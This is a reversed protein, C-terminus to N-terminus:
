APLTARQTAIGALVATLVDVQAQVQAADVTKLFRATGASTRNGRMIKKRESQLLEVVDLADQQQQPTLSPLAAQGQATLIEGDKKALAAAGSAQSRDAREDALDLGTDRYSYTKLEFNVDATAADCEAWNTLLTYDPNM